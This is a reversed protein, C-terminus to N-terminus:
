GSLYSGNLLNALCIIDSSIRNRGRSDSQAPTLMDLFLDCRGLRCLGLRVLFPSIALSTYYIDLYKDLNLIKGGDVRWTLGEAKGTAFTVPARRYQRIDLRPRAHAARATQHEGVIFPLVYCIEPFM